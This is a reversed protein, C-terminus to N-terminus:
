WGCMKHAEYTNCAWTKYKGLARDEANSPSTTCAYSYDGLSYFCCDSGSYGGWILKQEGKSLEQAETFDVFKVKELKM